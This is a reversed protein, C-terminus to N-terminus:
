NDKKVWKGIRYDKSGTYFVKEEEDQFELSFIYDEHNDYTNFGGQIVNYVTISYDISGALLFKDDKTFRIILACYNQNGSQKRILKKNNSSKIKINNGHSQAFLYNNNSFQVYFSSSIQDRFIIRQQSINLFFLSRIGSVIAIQKQHNTTICILKNCDPLIVSQLQKSSIQYISIVNTDGISIVSEDNNTLIAFRHIVNPTKIIEPEVYKKNAYSYIVFFHDFGFQFLRNNKSFILCLVPLKHTKELIQYISENNLDFIQIMETKGGFALLQLNHNVALTYISENTVHFEQYEIQFQNLMM